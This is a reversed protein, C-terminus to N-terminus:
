IPPISTIPTLYFRFQMPIKKANVMIIKLASKCRNCSQPTKEVQKKPLRVRLLLQVRKLILRANAQLFGYDRVRRFGRLLVHQVIRWIFEEPALKRTVLVKTKSERYRFIVENNDNTLIDNASTVGRYLYRSVYTLAKKGQGMARINAVWQKLIGRPLPVAHKFLIRLM